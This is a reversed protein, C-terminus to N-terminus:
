VTLLQGLELDPVMHREVRVTLKISNRIDEAMRRARPPSIDLVQDGLKITVHRHPILPDVASLVGTANLDAAVTSVVSTVDLKGVANLVAGEVYGPKKWGRGFLGKFPNM